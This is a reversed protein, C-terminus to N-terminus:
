DLDFRYLRIPEFYGIEVITGLEDFSDVGYKIVNLEPYLFDTNRYHSLQSENVLILIPKDRLQNKLTVSFDGKLIEFFSKAQATSTRSMKSSMLPLNSLTAFQFTLRTYEDDLGIAYVSESGEHYFPIPLIAQFESEHISQAALYIPHKQDKAEFNLPNLLRNQSSNRAISYTDAALLCLVFLFAGIRFRNSLNKHSSLVSDLVIAIIFNFCWFFPWNFRAMCRFQTFKESLESLYLFACLYNTRTEGFLPTHPGLATTVCFFGASFLAILLGRHQFGFKRIWIPSSLILLLFGWLAFNGLFANSEYHIHVGTAAPFPLLMGDYSHVLAEIYMNWLEWDYGTPSPERELYYIDTLRVFGTFLIATLGIILGSLVISSLFDRRVRFKSFVWVSLFVSSFFLFIPLYYFHFLAAALMLAILKISNFIQKKLEKSQWLCICLYIVGVTLIALSLSFHGNGLRQFQPNIWPLSISLLIILWRENLLRVLTFYLLLSLGLIQFILILNYLGISNEKVPLGLRDLSRFFIALPPSNDTYYILEGYPYNMMGYMWGGGVEADQSIYTQFTFYNKLGDYKDQFVYRNPHLFFHSYTVLLVVLQIGAVLILSRHKRLNM